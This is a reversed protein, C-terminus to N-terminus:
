KKDKYMEIVRTERITGPPCGVGGGRQRPFKERACFYKGRFRAPKNSVSDIVGYIHRVNEAHIVIKIENDELKWFHSILCQKAFLRDM